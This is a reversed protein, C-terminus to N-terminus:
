SKDKKDTSLYRERARSSPYITKLFISNKDEQICPVMFAKENICVYIIDQNPYKDQNHHPRFDLVNGSTIADVIKEFGIGREQLLKSDKEINYFYKKKHLHQM